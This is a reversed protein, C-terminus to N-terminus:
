FLLVFLVIKLGRTCNILLPNENLEEQTEECQVKALKVSFNARKLLNFITTLELEESGKTACILIKKLDM